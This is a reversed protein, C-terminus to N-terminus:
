RKVRPVHFHRIKTHDSFSSVMVKTLFVIFLYINNETLNVLVMYTVSVNNNRLMWVLYNRIGMSYLCNRNKSPCYHPKASFILLALSLPENVM